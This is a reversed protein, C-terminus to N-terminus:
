YINRVTSASVTYGLNSLAGEIGQYGWTGLVTERWLSEVRELEERAPELDPSIQTAMRLANRAESLVLFHESRM